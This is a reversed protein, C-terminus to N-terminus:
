QTLLASTPLQPVVEHVAQVVGTPPVTEHSPVIHTGFHRVPMFSHAPVHMSWVADHEPVHGAPECSQPPMQADFVLTSEHPVVEQEDHVFGVPALEVLQLPVVHSKAQAEPYWRQPLPQAPSPSAVAQPAVHVLQGVSGLPAGAHTWPAQPKFHLLPKWTHPPLHTSLLATAVQPGVSLVEHVAQWAGVPVPPVTVQSPSAQTGSQPLLLSHLPAQIAGVIAQLPIHGALVCLQEPM